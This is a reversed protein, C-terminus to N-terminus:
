TCNRNKTTKLMTTTLFFNSFHRSAEEFFSFFPSENNKKKEKEKKGFKRKFINFIIFIPFHSNKKRVSQVYCSISVPSLNSKTLGNSYRKLCM